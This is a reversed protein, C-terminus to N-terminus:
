EEFAIIEEKAKWFMKKWTWSGWADTRTIHLLSYYGLRPFVSSNSADLIMDAHYQICRLDATSNREKELCLYVRETWWTGSGRAKLEKEETVRRPPHDVEVLEEVQVAEPQAHRALPLAVAVVDGDPREDGGGDGGEEEGDVGADVEEDVGVHAGAEPGDQKAEAILSEPSSSVIRHPAVM